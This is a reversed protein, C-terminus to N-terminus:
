TLLQLLHHSQEYFTDFQRLLYKVRETCKLSQSVEFKLTELLVDVELIRYSM